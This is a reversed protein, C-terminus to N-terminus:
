PTYDLVEVKGHKGRIFKNKYQAAQSAEEFTPYGIAGNINPSNSITIKRVWSGAGHVFKRYMVGDESVLMKRHPIIKAVSEAPLYYLDFPKKGKNVVTYNRYMREFQEFLTYSIETFTNPQKFVEELQQFIASRMMRMNELEIPKSAFMKARNAGYNANVGSVSLVEDTDPNISIFLREPILKDIIDSTDTLGVPTYKLEKQYREILLKSIQDKYKEMEPSYKGVEKTIVQAAYSCLSYYRESIKKIYAINNM